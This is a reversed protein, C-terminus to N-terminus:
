LWKEKAYDRVLKYCTLLAVGAVLGIMTHGLIELFHGTPWFANLGSMVIVGVVFGPVSGTEKDVQGIRVFIYVVAISIGVQAIASFIFRALGEAETM